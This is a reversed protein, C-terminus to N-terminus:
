RSSKQRLKTVYSNIEDSFKNIDFGPHNPNCKITKINHRKFMDEREKEEDTDYNKHNGEDVEVTFHLDKFWIDPKKDNISKNLVVNEDLFLKIIKEALSVDKRVMIDDHNYGLKKRLEIAKPLKCREIIYCM